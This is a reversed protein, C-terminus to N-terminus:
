ENKFWLTANYSDLYLLGNQVNMKMLLQYLDKSNNEFIVAVSMYGADYNIINVDVMNMTKMMNLIGDIATKQFAAQSIYGNNQGNILRITIENINKLLSDATFKSYKGLIVGISKEHRAKYMLINNYAAGQFNYNIQNPVEKQKNKKLTILLVVGISLITLIIFIIVIKIM